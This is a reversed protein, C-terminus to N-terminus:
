KLNNSVLVFELGLSVGLIRLLREESSEKGEAKIKGWIITRGKDQRNLYWRKERSEALGNDWGVLFM